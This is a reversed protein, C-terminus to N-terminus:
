AGAGPDKRMREYYEADAVAGDLALAIFDAIVECFGALAEPSNAAKLAALAEGLREQPTVGAEREEDPALVSSASTGAMERLLEIALRQGGEHDQIPSM